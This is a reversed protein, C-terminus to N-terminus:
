PLREIEVKGGVKVEITVKYGLMMRMGVLQSSEVEDVEITRVAGDWNVTAEYVDFSAITGDALMLQIDTGGVLGLAVILARPLTLTRTYGSDIVTEIDHWLGQSDQIPISVTSELR